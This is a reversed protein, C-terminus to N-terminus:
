LGEGRADDVVALPGFLITHVISETDVAETSRTGEVSGDDALYSEGVHTIALVIGHANSDATGIAQAADVLGDIETAAPLAVAIGGEAGFAYSCVVMIFVTQAGLLYSCSLNSTLLSSFSSWLSSSFCDRVETMEGVRLMLM